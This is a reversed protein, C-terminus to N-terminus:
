QDAEGDERGLESKTRAVVEAQVWAKFAPRRRNMDKDFNPGPLIERSPERDLIAILDDLDVDEGFEAVSDLHDRLAALKAEATDRESVAVRLDEALGDIVNSVVRDRERM